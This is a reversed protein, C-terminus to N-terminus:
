SPEVAIEVQVQLNSLGSVKQSEEPRLKIEVEIIRRDLNEGPQASFTSQQNVVLGIESVTGFLTGNFAQGTVTAKQGIQMLSIDTQYVEAVVIMQSTNAMEVIGSNSIKEGARSHVKLIQGSIPARILVQEFNTKAIQVAVKARDVEAQAASLDVPRVESVQSLTARAADIQAILSNTTQEKQAIAENLQARTTELMLRYRDLDANPLAGKQHLSEFRAYEAEANKLQLRWRAVTAKHANREGALDAELKTITASQARIKGSKAGAKVQAVRSQAIRMQEEAAKVTQKLRDHSDLIAIIDGEQVRDGKRLLLKSVRDERLSLPASVQIVEEEPRLQGLAGINRTSSVESLQAIARREAIQRNTREVLYLGYLTLGCIAAIAILLLKLLRNSLPQSFLPLPMSAFFSFSPLFILLLLTKAFRDSVSEFPSLCIREIAAGFVM